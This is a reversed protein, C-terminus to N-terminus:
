EHIMVTKAVTSCVIVYWDGFLFESFCITNDKAKFVNLWTAEACEWVADGSAPEGTAAKVPELACPAKSVYYELVAQQGKVYDIQVYSM